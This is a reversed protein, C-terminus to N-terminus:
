NLQLDMDGAIKVDLAEFDLAVFECHPERWHRTPTSARQLAAANSHLCAHGSQEQNTKM